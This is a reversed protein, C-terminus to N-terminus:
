DRAPSTPRAMGSKQVSGGDVWLAQSFSRGGAMSAVPIESADGIGGVFVTAAATQVLHWANRGNLPMEVISKNNVVQGVSATESELLPAVASVEVAETLAGIELRFDLRAVQEVELRVSQTVPKFGQAQVEVRYTGPDLFLVTYYGQENSRTTRRDGTDANTVIVAAAAVVAGTPDSVRGTVQANQAFLLAPLSASLLLWRM